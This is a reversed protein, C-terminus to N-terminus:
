ILIIAHKIYIQMKEIGCIQLIPFLSIFTIKIGATDWLQLKVIKNNFKLVKIQFDVGITCKYKDTFTNECYRKLLSSKGTSPDGIIVIKFLFEMHSSYRSNM